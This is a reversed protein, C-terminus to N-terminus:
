SPQKLKRMEFKRIRERYHEKTQTRMTSRNEDLLEGHLNKAVAEATALMCDYANMVDRPEEMSMFFTVGPTTLQDMADIDFFGPEVANTMSFQIAGKDIGDEYRHFIKMDGYRMGCALVIQLLSRGYFDEGDKPAVVSIVLVKDADPTSQMAQGDVYPSAEIEEPELDDVFLPDPDSDYAPQEPEYEPLEPVVSQSQRETIPESVSSQFSELDMSEQLPEDDTNDARQMLESVPRSLDLDADDSDLGNEDANVPGDSFSFDEPLSAILDDDEMARSSGAPVDLLESGTVDAFALGIQDEAQKSDSEAQADLDADNMLSNLDLTPEVREEVSDPLEEAVDLSVKEQSSEEAQQAEVFMPELVEVAPEEVLATTGGEEETVTDEIVEVATFDIRTEGVLPPLKDEEGQDQQEAADANIDSTVPEEVEPTQFNFEPEPEPEPENLTDFAEQNGRVDDVTAAEDPSLVPVDIDAATNQEEPESVPIVRAASVGEELYEFDDLPEFLPDREASLPHEPQKKIVPATNIKDATLHPNPKLAQPVEVSNGAGDIVRVGGPLEPNYDDEPVDTFSNDINMKLTNRNGRMRRWGDLVILAVVIGGGIILWERLSLEM